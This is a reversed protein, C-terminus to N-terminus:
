KFQILNEVKLGVEEYTERVAAAKPTEGKEVRGGPANILGAGLGTKKHILLIKGEARDRIFCLVADEVANWVAPEIDNAKKM